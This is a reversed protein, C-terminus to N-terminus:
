FQFGLTARLSHFDFSTDSPRINTGGGNLLFPNTALATGQGVAVRYKNDKYRNYLYELGLSVQDTLMIEGGGGAQWGWVRKGDNVQTFSNQTNTTVFSHNIKGWSAGGTGYFLAGGGPTFGARARASIAYDMKRGLQYSAPTTSYGSTFDRANSRSAEILGGVVFNGGMRRDYGIRAAYEVRNNDPGCSGPVAGGATGHCFGPGFANAGTSTTVTENYSGNRDTDFVLTDGVDNGQAAMGVTASVYPGDFHTDRNSQALAPSAVAFLASAAL